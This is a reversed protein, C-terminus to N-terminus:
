RGVALPQLGLPERWLGAIGVVVLLVGYVVEVGIMGEVVPLLLAVGAVPVLTALIRGVGSLQFGRAMLRNAGALVCALVVLGLGTWGATLELSVIGALGLAAVLAADHRWAVAAIAALVLLPFIAPQWHVMGGAVATPGLRYLLVAGLVPAAPGQRGSQFPALHLLPWAALLLIPTVLLEFSSSYPADPLAAFGLPSDGAVTALLWWAAVLAIVSVIGGVAWRGDSRATREFAWGTLLGALVAAFLLHLQGVSLAVLTLGLHAALLRFAHPAAPSPRASAARRQRWDDLRGLVAGGFRRVAIGVLLMVGAILGFAVITRAVGGARAFPTAIVGALVLGAGLGSAVVPRRRWRTAGGVATLCAALFILAATTALYSQPLSASQWEDGGAVALSGVALTALVAGALARRCATRDNLGAAALSLLLPYAVFLSPMGPTYDGDCGAVFGTAARYLTGRETTDRRGPAM